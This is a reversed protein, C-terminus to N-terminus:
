EIIYAIIFDEKKVLITKLSDSMSLRILAPIDDSGICILEFEKEVYTEKILEIELIKFYQRKTAYVIISSNNLDITIPVHVKLFDSEKTKGNNFITVKMYVAHVELTQASIAITAIVMLLTLIFKKM